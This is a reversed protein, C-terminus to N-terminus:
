GVYEHKKPTEEWIIEANKYSTPLEKESVLIELANRIEHETREQDCVQYAAESYMDQMNHYQSDEEEHFICWLMYIKPKNKNEIHVCLHSLRKEDNPNLLSVLYSPLHADHTCKCRYDKKELIDLLGM